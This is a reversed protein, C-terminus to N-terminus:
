TLVGVDLGSINYNETDLGFFPGPNIFVSNIRVGAGKVRFYGSTILAQFLASPTGGSIGIDISMDANDQIFIHILPQGAFIEALIRQAQQLSGDWYNAAIQAYLMLRYTPDDLAIVGEAPDEKGKLFGADLGLAADDLSFYVGAIPENLNRGLNVWQGVVDLQRGSAVDVDYKGPISELVAIEDVFPQLIASLVAIFNPRTRHEGTVLNLYDDLAVM